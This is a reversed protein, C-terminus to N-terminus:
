QIMHSENSWIFDFDLRCWFIFMVIGSSMEWGTLLITSVIFGTATRLDSLTRTFWWWCYSPAHGLGFVHHVSAWLLCILFEHICQWICILLKIHNCVHNLIFIKLNLFLAGFFLLWILINKAMNEFFLVCLNLIMPIVLLEILNELQSTWATICQPILYPFISNTINTGNIIQINLNGHIM